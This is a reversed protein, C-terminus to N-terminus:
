ACYVSRWAGINVSLSDMAPGYRNEVPQYAASHSPACRWRLLGGLIGCVNDACQVLHYYQSDVVLPSEFVRNFIHGGSFLYSQASAIVKQDVAEARRDIVMIGRGLQSGALYNLLKEYARMVSQVISTYLADVDHTGGAPKVRGCAVVKCDHRSLLSLVARAFRQNRRNGQRSPTAVTRGKFEFREPRGGGAAIERAFYNRKLYLYGRDVDKWRDHRVLVGGLGFVPSHNHTPSAPDFRGCHGFEDLYLLYM